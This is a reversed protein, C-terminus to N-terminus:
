EEVLAVALAAPPRGGAINLGTVMGRLRGCTFRYAPGIHAFDVPALVADAADAWPWSDRGLKILCESITWAFLLAMEVPAQRRAVLGDVFRMREDGLMLRWEDLSYGPSFQLDLAVPRTGGTLVLTLDDAHTASVVQGQRARDGSIVLGARVDTAGLGDALLRETLAALLEPALPPRHQGAGGGRRLELGRWQEVIAGDMTKVDIDFVFRTGDSYRQHANILYDEGAALNGPAMREVAVPLVVQHPICLQLAHLVADRLAPVGGSFRGPLMPGYWDTDIGAAAGVRVTCATSSLRQVTLVHQFRPGHFCLGQYLLPAAPLARGPEADATAAPLSAMVRAPAFTATFHATEFGSLSARLAVEVRGDVLVLACTRLVFRQGPSCSIGEGVRMDQMELRGADLLLARAASLMAEVACVLPFMPVGYPAHDRLYRDADSCIEAEAVLEVGPYFVRPQELYRCSQLRRLDEPLLPRGYRGSIILAGDTAHEVAAILAGLAEDNDLPRLGTQRLNELVDELRRAMGTEGWASWDLRLVRCAPAARRTQDLLAGLWENALAYHAEGPLGFQGIISGYGILLDLQAPPLCDLLNRLGDVKPALTAALDQKGLNAVSAPHNVGAAHLVARVEGMTSQIARVVESLGRADAIDAQFYRAEIGADRCLAMQRLVEPHEPPSRGLLALRCQYRLALERAGVAGIGRAGGTVVLVTAPPLTWAAEDAPPAAVRLVRRQRGGDRLRLESYGWTEGAYDELAHRVADGDLAAYELVCVRCRPLEAAVSRLFGNALQAAQLVLLGHADGTPALHRAADLLAEAAAPGPGSPLVLIMRRPAAEADDHLLSPLSSAGAEIIRQLLSESQPPAVAAAAAATEWRHTYLRLWPAIGAPLGEGDGSKAHRLGDLYSAAELLSANALRALEFPMKDMGLRQATLAVVHRARISNLHLDDLLRWGADLGDAPLGTQEAVVAMLTELPSAAVNRPAAVLTPAPAQDTAGSGIGCPNRLFLPEADLACDRPRRGTYLAAHHLPTGCVWAAGAVALTARLDDGFLGMSMARGPYREEAWGALVEGAGVEVILDVEGLNALAASFLVPGTIQRTLLRAVPEAGDLPAGTISSVMRCQPRRWAVDAAHSAFADRAAAMGSTHFAYGTPLVSASIRDTGCAAAAAQVDRADGALVFREVGNECALELRHHAAIVDALERPAQVALMAGPPALDRMCAGRRRALGRLEEVTMQGSAYLAALEGFSHGLVVDPHIGRHRLLAVGAIALEALLPQLVATDRHDRRALADANEAAERLHAFRTLWPIPRLALEAGQGAFLFAIRPAAGAPASWSFGRGIHRESREQRGQRGQREIRRLDLAAAKAVAALEQPTGAIVSARWAPRQDPALTHALDALQARSLTGARRALQDLLAALRSPDAASLQFLEGDPANAAPGPAATVEAGPEGQVVVHCNVGGFGFSNIGVTVARAHRVPEAAARVAVREGIEGALLPHPDICGTTPPIVRERCIAIAKLLGAMGAAAKAHGINAKISGLPVPRAPTEGGFLAALGALEVADGTPTGTGHAEFYDAQLPNLGARTWARRAALAQGAITPRTIAGQGDTSMAAGRLWALVPWGHRRAAQESALVVFGCGEGPWFGDAASDFVRMLKRAMAGNRAFGVLEFPDLSLDVAGVLACATDGMALREYASAIAVLSSACAGDVAHAGGRLGHYNAIRGAITNSLGGALSDEDPEPLPAKYNREAAAILGALDADALKGQAAAHIAKRVYPWRYRLAHSRSFEGTLTNAVIVAMGDREEDLRAPALASLARTAVDLALWHAMDTREFTSLPIRFRERDFRYGELLGAEIPYIGDPDDAAAYDSLDLRERPIARFCRRADLVTDWLEGPTRSDPFECAMAVIAVRFAM